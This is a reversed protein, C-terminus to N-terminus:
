CGGSMMVALLSWVLLFPVGVAILGLLVFAAPRAGRRRHFVLTAIALGVLALFVAGPTWIWALDPWAYDACNNPMTLLFATMPLGFVAVVLAAIAVPRATAKTFTPIPTPAPAPAMAVNQM